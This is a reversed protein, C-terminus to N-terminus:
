VPPPVCHDVCDGCVYEAPCPNYRCPQAMPHTAICARCLGRLICDSQAPRVAVVSTVLLAAVVLLLKFRTM